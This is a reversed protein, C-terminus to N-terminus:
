YEIAINELCTFHVILQMTNNTIEYKLINEEIIKDGDDFGACMMEEATFLLKSYNDVEENSDNITCSTTVITWTYAFVKGYAGIIYEKGDSGTIRDNVLLTGQKVYQNEKVLIEGSSVVFHSIFGDKRAYLAGKRVPIDIEDRRLTYKIIIDVGKLRLELFEIDDKFFVKLSEEYQMLEDFKPKRMGKHVGIDKLKYKIQGNINKNIGNIEIDYVRNTLDFFGITSIIVAILTTKKLFLSGMWTFIGYKKVVKCTKFLKKISKIYRPSVEFSYVYDNIYKLNNFPIDNERLSNILYLPSYVTVEIRVYNHKIM